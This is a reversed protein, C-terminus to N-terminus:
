ARKRAAKKRSKARDANKVDLVKVEILDGVKLPATSKWRV